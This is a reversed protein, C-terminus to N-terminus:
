RFISRYIVVCVGLVSVASFTIVMLWFGWLFPLTVWWWSWNIVGGLKLGVFLVGLMTIASPGFYTQKSM